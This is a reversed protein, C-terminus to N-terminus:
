SVVLRPVAPQSPIPTGAQRLANSPRWESVASRLRPLPPSRHECFGLSQQIVASAKSKTADHRQDPWAIVILRHAEDRRPPLISARHQHAM